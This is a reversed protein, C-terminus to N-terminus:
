EEQHPSLWKNLAARLQDPKQTGILLKHGNLVLKLGHNGRISMARGNKPRWRYGLGGFDLIPNYKAVEWTKFDEKRITKWNWVFPFFRYHFGVRDLRTELSASFLLWNLGMIISIMFTSFLVLELDAMPKDGLIEGLFLQRYIGTGLIGIVLFSSSIILLWLWVQNFKQKEEFPNM